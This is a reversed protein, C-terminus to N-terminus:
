AELESELEARSPHNGVPDYGQQTLTLTFSKSCLYKTYTAYVLRPAVVAGYLKYDILIDQIADSSQHHTGYSPRMQRVPESGDGSAKGHDM